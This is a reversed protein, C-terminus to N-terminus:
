ASSGVAPENAARVVEVSTGATERAHRAMWEHARPGTSVDAARVTEVPLSPVTTHRVLPHASQRIADGEGFLAETLKEGPRLGTFDIRVDTRGSLGILTEAVDLIRVPEGMDLVMAEGDVGLAAAQLVLQCAEPILMFFREVDPHTVTMPGGQAIQATFAEIVSGRSGLVNGFRVSVYTNDDLAAFHATLREAIRKSYGLVCTPDAAKDTSINVVTPVEVRFAADLVNLTGIVNTKWAEEPFQELLTLHKLAAAHFVVDPRESEMVARVTPADRIDCLILSGDDLLARGTLRLQTAHLASEDRDLLVLRRPGFRLIQHCLESGISGGAGTVLVTRGTVVDSIASADLEVSRRGLLDELDIRRLDTAEAPRFMDRTSPLALVELGLDRAHSYVARTREASMSPAAIVLATADTSAVVRELADLPGRVRIGEVRWRRKAPDDDLLAVPVLGAEQADRRIARLVQRAGEGAGFVVVKATGEQSRRYRWRYARVVFRSAFMGLVALLPATFALSRPVAFIDTGFRVAALAAMLLVATTMLQVAEEFSGRQHGRSLVGFVGGIVLHLVAALAAFAIVDPRAVPATEFDFRLWTALLLAVGM